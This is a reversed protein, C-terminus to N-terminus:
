GFRDMVLIIRGKKSVRSCERVVAKGRGRVSVTSGEGVPKDSKVCPMHDLSVRGAAILEAAKGRSMSFASSVVADLRMSSVTDQVQTVKVAPVLLEEREIATVTLHVRGASTWERALFEALAPSVVVDASHDSVLIDGVRERTIGMGMLAGLIDRHTLTSDQGHFQARLFALEDAAEEAWDPLFILKKREAAEYGGDAVYGERIGAANLLSISLVQERPSLFETATPINRQTCQQVKDLVRALLVRDEPERAVRSILLNKDM